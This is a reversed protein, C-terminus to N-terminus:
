LDYLKVDKKIEDITLLENKLFDVNHSHEEYIVYGKSHTSYRIFMMKTVRPGLKAHKHTSNHVYDASGVLM